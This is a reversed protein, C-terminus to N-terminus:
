GYIIYVTFLKKRELVSDTQNTLSNYYNFNYLLIFDEFKIASHSFNGFVFSKRTRIKRYKSQICSFVSRFFSRVKSATYPTLM